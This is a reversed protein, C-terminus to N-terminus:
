TMELEARVLRAGEVMARLKGIATDRPLYKMGCDPALVLRDPPVYALAARVRSAVTEPAEVQPDALDLVGLIITKDPPVRLAALDLKPQAAEISIAQVVCDNLEALFPYGNPKNTAIYAYGFCTHLATACRVGDLARNIVEVAYARAAEVRSQLWPEDLQVVDVGAAELDKIEENVVRAFDLAMARDDPYFDNKAQQAMTFPGPVTIKM